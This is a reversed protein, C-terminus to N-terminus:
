HRDNPTSHKDLTKVFLQKEREGGGGEGRGRERESEREGAVVCVIGCIWTYAARVVALPAESVREEVCIDPSRM